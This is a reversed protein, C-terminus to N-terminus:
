PKEKIEYYKGHKDLVRGLAYMMGILTFVSATLAIYIIALIVIIGAYGTWWEDFFIHKSFILISLAGLFLVPIIITFAISLKKM